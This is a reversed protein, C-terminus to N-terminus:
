ELITVKVTRRGFRFCEEPTNYCLDIRNGKVSTGVDAAIADGYGEIYLRTGLPIVRPDVAVVGKQARMGTATRSGVGPGSNPSYASAHMIMVKGVQARIEGRSATVSSEGLLAFKRKTGVAVVKALPPSIVGEMKVQRRIPQDGEFVVEVIRMLLGQKGQTVVRRKGYNLNPDKKRVTKYPVPIKTIEYERTSLAVEVVMGATLKEDRNPQVKDAPKLRLGIDKLVEGVTDANSMMTIKEKNIKVIVPVAHEVDVTMGEKIRKSPDPTVEDFAKVTVGNEKLVDAVTRARTKIVRKEGDVVLTVKAECYVLDVLVFVMILALLIVEYKRARPGLALQHFRASM